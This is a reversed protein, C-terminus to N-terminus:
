GSAMRHTIRATWENKTAATALALAEKYAPHEKYAEVGALDAFLADVIFDYDTALPGITDDSHKTASALAPTRGIV